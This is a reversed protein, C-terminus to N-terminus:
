MRSWSSNWAKIAAPCEARAQAQADQEDVLSRANVAIEFAAQLCKPMVNREGHGTVAAILAAAGIDVEVPRAIV